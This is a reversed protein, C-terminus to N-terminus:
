SALALVTRGRVLKGYQHKIYMPTYARIDLDKVRGSDYRRKAETKWEAFKEVGVDELIKLITILKAM